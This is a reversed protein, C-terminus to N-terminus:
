LLDREELMEGLHQHAKRAREHAEEPTHDPEDGVLSPSWGCWECYKGGGTVEGTHKNQLQMEALALGCHPCDEGDYTESSSESGATFVDKIAGLM